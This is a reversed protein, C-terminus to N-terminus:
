REQKPSVLDGKTVARTLFRPDIGTQKAVWHKWDQRTAAPKWKKMAAKARSLKDRRESAIRERTRVVATAANGCRRSCYVNQSARKKVYYRGCRACPGGLREWYPNITLLNFWNWAHFRAGYMGQLGVIARRAGADCIVVVTAGGSPTPELKPQFAQQL